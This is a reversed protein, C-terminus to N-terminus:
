HLCQGPSGLVSVVIVVVFVTMVAGRGCGSGIIGPASVLPLNDPVPAPGCLWSILLGDMSGRVSGPRSPPPSRAVESPSAVGAAGRWESSKMLDTDSRRGGPGFAAAHRSARWPVHLFGLLTVVLVGGPNILSICSWDCSAWSIHPRPSPAM